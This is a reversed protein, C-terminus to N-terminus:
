TGELGWFLLAQAPSEQEALKKGPNQFFHMGRVLNQAWGMM